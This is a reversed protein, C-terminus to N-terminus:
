LTKLEMFNKLAALAKESNQARASIEGGVENLWQDVSIEDTRLKIGKVIKVRQAALPTHESRDELTYTNDGLTVTISAIRTDSSFLRVKKREIISERPMAQELLVALLPVFEKQDEAYSRLLAGAVGISEWGDLPQTM